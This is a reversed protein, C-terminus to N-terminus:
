EGLDIEIQMRALELAAARDDPNSQWRLVLQSYTQLRDRYRQSETRYHWAIASGTVFVAVFAAVAAYARMM